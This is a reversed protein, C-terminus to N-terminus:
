QSVTSGFPETFGQISNIPIGGQSYQWFYVDGYLDPGILTKGQLWYQHVDKAGSLPTSGVIIARSGSFRLRYVILSRSDELIVHKGDFQIGGANTIRRDLRYNTFQTAGKPLEGIYFYPQKGVDDVFLDGKNDYACYFMYTNPVSEYYVRPREKAKPFIVVYWADQSAVAVNGSTPDVSCDFPSLEVYNDYLTKLRKTSGHAYEYLHYTPPDTVFVDGAQDSCLGAPSAFGYIDGVHVGKPYSFVHVGYFDSIYLLDESTAEPAM